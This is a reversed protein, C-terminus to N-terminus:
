DCVGGEALPCRVNTLININQKDKWAVVILNCRVRTKIDGQKQRLKRGSDSPMRKQNPRVVV